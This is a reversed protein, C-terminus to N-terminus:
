KKIYHLQGWINFITLTIGCVQYTNIFQLNIIEFKYYTKPNDYKQKECNFKFNKLVM